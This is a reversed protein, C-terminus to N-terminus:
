SPIYREDLQVSVRWNFAGILGYFHQQSTCDAGIVATMLAFQNLVTAAGSEHTSAPSCANQYVAYREGVRDVTVM